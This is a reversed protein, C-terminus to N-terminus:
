PNLLGGSPPNLLGDPSQGATSGALLLSRILAAKQAPNKVALPADRLMQQYLPSRSRVLEDVRGLQRGVLSNYAGRAATGVLPLLAAGATAGEVGGMAGGAAAGLAGIMTHGIGGGGGLMNGVQRLTNSTATGMVVQRIADLEDQSYGRSQKPNLLIAKLRQRTANGINHGSNAAAAQLDAADQANTLRDSRFAAAANGRAERILRAAESEATPGTNEPGALTLPGGVGAGNAAGPAAAAPTGAMSPPASGNEIFQDIRGIARRAAEQETPNQFNGGIRNLAKRAADLSAITVTSGEPPNSLKGLIAHTQPALEALIGDNQLGNITDQALSGIADGPYSAGTAKAADYGASAASKLADATPPKLKPTKLAKMDGPIVFEGARMAPNVPTALTALNFARQQAEPSMPDLKGMYVDGPAKVAQIISGLIGATPDFHIHGQADQSLPLVDFPKNPTPMVPQWDSVQAPPSANGAAPNVTVWDDAM